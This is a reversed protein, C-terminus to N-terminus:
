SINYKHRVYKLSYKLMFEREFYISISTIIYSNNLREIYEIYAKEIFLLTVRRGILMVRINIFNLVHTLFFFITNPKYISSFFSLNFISCSRYIYRSMSNLPISSIYAISKIICRVRTFFPVDIYTAFYLLNVSSLFHYNRFNTNLFIFDSM